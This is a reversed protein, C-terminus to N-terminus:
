IKFRAAYASTDQSIILLEKVGAKKLAMAENMVSDILGRFWIAAYAQFSAFPVVTTVAKQYKLTLMIVQPQKVGRRM